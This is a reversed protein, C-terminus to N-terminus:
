LWHERPSDLADLAPQGFPDVARHVEDVLRVAPAFRLPQPANVLLPMKACAISDAFAFRYLNPSPVATALGLKQGQSHICGLTACARFQPIIRGHGRHGRECVASEWCCSFVSIFLFSLLKLANAANVSSPTM